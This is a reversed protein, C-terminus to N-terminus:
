FAFEHGGTWGQKEHFVFIYQYKKTDGTACYCTSFTPIQIHNTFSHIWIDCQLIFAPNLQASECISEILSSWVLTM